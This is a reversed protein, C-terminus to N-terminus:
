RYKTLFIGSHKMNESELTNKDIKSKLQVNSYILFEVSLQKKDTYDVNKRFETVMELFMSVAIYAFQRM